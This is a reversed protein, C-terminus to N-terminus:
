WLNSPLRPSKGCLGAGLSGKEKARMLLLNLDGWVQTM